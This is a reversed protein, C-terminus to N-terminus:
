GIHLDGYVDRLQVVQDARGHFVNVVGDHGVQTWLARIQRGFEPDEASAQDLAHALGPVAGPDHQAADLAARAAPRDRFKERVRRVLAVLGERAQDTLSVATKGAIATAIALTVPDAM